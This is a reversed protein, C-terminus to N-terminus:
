GLNVGGITSTTGDKYNLTASINQTRNKVESIDVSTVKDVNSDYLIAETVALKKVNDPINKQNISLVQTVDLGLDANYFLEGKVISLCNKTRQLMQDTGDVMQMRKSKIVIDGNDFLISRM